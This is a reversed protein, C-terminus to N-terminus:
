ETPEEPEENKILEQLRQQAEEMENKKQRLTQRKTKIEQELLQCEERCQEIRSNEEILAEM